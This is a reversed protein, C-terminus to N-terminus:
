HKIVQAQDDDDEQINLNHPRRTNDPGIRLLRGEDEAQDIEETM